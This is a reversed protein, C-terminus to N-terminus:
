RRRRRTAVAPHHLHYQLVQTQRRTDEQMLKPTMKPSKTKLKASIKKPPCFTSCANTWCMGSLLRVNSPDLSHCPVPTDSLWTHLLRADHESERYPTLHFNQLPTGCMSMHEYWSVFAPARRRNNGDHVDSSCSLGSSILFSRCYRSLPVTPVTLAAFCQRTLQSDICYVTARDLQVCPTSKHSRSDHPSVTQTYFTV